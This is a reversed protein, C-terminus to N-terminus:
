DQTRPLHAKVNSLGVCSGSQCISILGRESEARSIMSTVESIRRSGYMGRKKSVRTERPIYELGGGHDHLLSRFTKMLESDEGVTERIALDLRDVFGFTEESLNDPM